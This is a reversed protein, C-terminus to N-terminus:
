GSSFLDPRVHLRFSVHARLRPFVVEVRRAPTFRRLVPSCGDRVGLAGGSSGLSPGIARGPQSHGLVAPYRFVAGFSRSPAHGVEPPPNFRHRKPRPRILTLALSRNGRVRRCASRDVVPFLHHEFDNLVRARAIREALVSRRVVGCTRGTSRRRKAGSFLTFGCPRRSRWFTRV